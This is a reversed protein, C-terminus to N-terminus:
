KLYIHTRHANARPSLTTKQQTPTTAGGNCKGLGINNGGM